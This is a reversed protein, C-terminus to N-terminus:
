SARASITSCRDAFFKEYPSRRGDKVENGLPKGDKDNLSPVIHSTSRSSAPSTRSPWGTPTRRAGTWSASASPSPPEFGPMDHCGFCGLRGVAKKGLYYKLYRATPRTAATSSTTLEQEDAAFRTIPSRRSSARRPRSSAEGHLAARCCSADFYLKPWSRSRGAADPYASKWSTAWLTADAPTRARLLWAAM